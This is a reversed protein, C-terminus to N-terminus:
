KDDDSIDYNPMPTDDAFKAKKKKLAMFLLVALVVNLALSVFFLIPWVEHMSINCYEGKPPVEVEVEKIVEQPNNLAAMEDQIQQILALIQDAIADCAEQDGSTLMDAGQNMLNLLNSWLQGLKDNDRLNTASELAALLKSYDMPVLAAIADALAAAAADVEAQSKSTTCALANNLAAALNEWSEKTYDAQNLGKAIEIQRNLETYDISVTPETAETSPETPDTPKTPNTPNTSDAVVTITKSATGAIMTMGGDSSKNYEFTVVCTEGAKATKKLTVVVDVSGSIGGKTASYMYCLDNVVSGDMGPLNNVYTVKDIIDMNSFTFKGDLSDIETFAFSLTVTKGAKGEEASVATALSLVIMLTLLLAVAKKLHKM